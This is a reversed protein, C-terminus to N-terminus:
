EGYKYTQINKEKRSVVLQHIFIQINDTCFCAAATSLLATKTQSTHRVACFSFFLSSTLFHHLKTHIHTIYYVKSTILNQFIQVNYFM